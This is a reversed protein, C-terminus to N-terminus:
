CALFLSLSIGVDFSYYCLGGVGEMRIRSLLLEIGLGRMEEFAVVLGVGV